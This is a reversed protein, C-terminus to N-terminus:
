FHSVISIQFLFSFPSILFSFASYSNLSPYLFFSVGIAYLFYLHGQENTHVHIAHM